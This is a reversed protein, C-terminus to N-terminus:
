VQKLDRVKYYEPYLNDHKRIWEAMNRVQTEYDNLMLGSNGLEQKLSKDILENEIRIINREGEFYKNFYELLQFKGIGHSPVTHFLGHAKHILLHEIVRAFEDTTLGTWIANAYGNVNGQQKLFWNLLSIGKKDQEPGILSTRICIDKDNIVEGLAKSRAYFSTADPKDELDYNGKSGSFICDTSRHVVVTDTGKTLKELLHPLYSNIFTAEAKNEEAFQNIVALTNIVADYKRENIIRAINTTDHIDGEYADVKHGNEKFYHYIVHGVMGKHDFVLLKM